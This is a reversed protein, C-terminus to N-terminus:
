FCSLIHNRSYTRICAVKERFRPVTLHCFIFIRLITFIIICSPEQLSTCLMVKLVERPFVEEVKKCDGQLFTVDERKHRALPSLIGLDIDVSYVHTKSDYVKMMDAVYVASGGACAGFEIITQPKVDWLLHQLIVLTCPDKMLNIGKWM